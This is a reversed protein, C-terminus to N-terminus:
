HIKSLAFPALNHAVNTTTHCKSVHLWCALLPAHQSFFKSISALLANVDQLTKGVAARANRANNVAPSAGEAAQVSVGAEAKM